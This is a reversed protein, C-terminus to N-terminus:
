VHARGIKMLEQGLIFIKENVRESREYLEYFEYALLDLIGYGCIDFLALNRYVQVFDSNYIEIIEGTKITDYVEDSIIIGLSKKTYKLLEVDNRIDIGDLSASFIINSYALFQKAIKRRIPEPLSLFHEISTETIDRVKFNKSKLLDVFRRVERLFHLDQNDTRKSVAAISGMHLRPM